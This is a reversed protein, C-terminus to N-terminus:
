RSPTAAKRWFRSAANVPCWALVWCTGHLLYRHGIQYGIRACTWDAPDNHVVALDIHHRDIHQLRQM